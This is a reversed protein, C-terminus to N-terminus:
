SRLKSYPDGYLVAMVSNYFEVDSAPVVRSEAAYSTGTAAFAATNQAYSSMVGYAHKKYNLFSDGISRGAKFQRMFELDAGLGAVAAEATETDATLQSGTAGAIARAGRSLFALAISGNTYESAIKGGFCSRSYVFPNRPLWLWSPIEREVDLLEYTGLTVSTTLVNRIPVWGQATLSGQASGHVNLFIVSSQTFAFYNGQPDCQEVVSEFPISADETSSTYNCAAPAWFCAPYPNAELFTCNENAFERWLTNAAVGLWGPVLSSSSLCTLGETPGGCVDSLMVTRDLRLPTADGEIANAVSSAFVNIRTADTSFQTPFRSAIVDPEVGDQPTAYLDDSYIRGDKSFFGLSDEQFPMPIVSMGGVLILYTPDVARRIKRVANVYRRSTEVTEEELPRGDLNFQLSDRSVRFAKRATSDALNVYRVSKGRTDWLNVYRQIWGRFNDSHPSGGYQATAEDELDVRDENTVLLVDAECPIRAEVFTVEPNSLAGAMRSVTFWLRVDGCFQCFSDYNITTEVISRQNERVAPAEDLYFCDTIDVGSGVLGEAHFEPYVVEFDDDPRAQALEDYFIELSPEQTVDVSLRLDYVSEEVRSTFVLPFDLRGGDLDSAEIKLWWAESDFVLGANALAFM